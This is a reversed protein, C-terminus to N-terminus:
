RFIPNPRRPWSQYIKGLRLIVRWTAAPILFGDSVSLAEDVLVRREPWSALARLGKEILEGIIWWALRSETM